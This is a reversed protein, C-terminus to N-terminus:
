TTPYSYHKQIQRSTTQVSKKTRRDLSIYPNNPRLVYRPLAKSCRHLCTRYLDYHIQDRCSPQHTPTSDCEGPSSTACDQSAFVISIFGHWEYSAFFLVTLGDLQGSNNARKVGQRTCKKWASTQVIDAPDLMIILYVRKIIQLVSGLFYEKSPSMPHANTVHSM